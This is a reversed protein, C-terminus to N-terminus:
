TLECHQNTISGREHEFQVEGTQPHFCIDGGGSTNGARTLNGVSGWQELKPTTYELRNATGAQRDLNMVLGEQRFLNANMLANRVDKLYTTNCNNELHIIRPLLITKKMM